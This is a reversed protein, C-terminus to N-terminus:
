RELVAAVGMGGATCVSILGRGKGKEKLLRGLTAVLRTGTAAFPHGMAVSGGVVNLKSRDISGMAKERGLREKCYKESEWAKLTCLVQAAFAEHIEYFDFDQLELGLRTLLRSVAHVPAMLLGDGHVFDVAAVEGSVLYAEIPLGREKAWSESSLLACSAGDTLPTSNGATLTGKGSFDFAPKLKALKELSTDPRLNNDKSAGFAPTILDKFFGRDYAAAGHKHSQLALEDQAERTIGWEQAMKECHQGMTLKTRPELIGPVVPKLDLFPFRSIMAIKEGMTKTRSMQVFWRAVKQGYVIPVDSNTDTGGAVGSEIQGLAIKNGILIAAELSTGCARQLDFGPTYASLGSELVTERALNWDASHKLIAGLSVDGLVQGKLGFKDVLAKLATSMLDFNSAEKYSTGSRCFPIRAGGLIAVKRAEM